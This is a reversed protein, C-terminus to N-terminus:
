GALVAAPQFQLREGEREFQGEPREPMAAVRTRRVSTM